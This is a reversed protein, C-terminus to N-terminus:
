SSAGTRQRRMHTQTNPARMANRYIHTDTHAHVNTNAEEAGADDKREPMKPAGANKSNRCNRDAYQQTETNKTPTPTKKSRRCIRDAYKQTEANKPTPM